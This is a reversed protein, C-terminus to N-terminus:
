DIQTAEIQPDSWADVRTVRARIVHGRIFRVVEIIEGEEPLHEGRHKYFPDVAGLSDKLALAVTYTRTETVAQRREAALRRLGESRPSTSRLGAGRRQRLPPDM